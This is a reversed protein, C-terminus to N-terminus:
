KLGKIPYKRLSYSQELHAGEVPVGLELDQKIRDKDLVTETVPRTYETLLSEDDIILSPKVTSLKFRFSKGTLEPTGSDIMVRKVFNNYRSVLNKINKAIAKFEDAQRQYFEERQELNQVMFSYAEVAEANTLDVAFLEQEIPATDTGEVLATELEYSKQLVSLKVDQAISSPIKQSM